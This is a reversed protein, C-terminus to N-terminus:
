ELANLRKPVRMLEPLSRGEEPHIRLEKTSGQTEKKEERISFSIQLSLSLSRFLV